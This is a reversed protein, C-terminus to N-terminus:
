LAVKYLISSIDSIIQTLDEFNSGETMICLIYPRDKRYVIGCDHLEVKAVRNTTTNISTREGFKNAVKIDKPVGAVIGKDFTSKTMLELLKESQTINLYSANYLARLIGSYVTASFFDINKTGDEVDPVHISLDILVKEFFDTNLGSVLPLLVDNDSNIIMRNIMENISYKQGSVMDEGKENFHQLINHSQADAKYVIEQSLLTSDIEALKYYAIAMPLKLLSGPSFLESQNVGFWKTSSLDRYFVSVRKVKNLSTAREIYKQIKDKNNNITETIQDSNLCDTNPNIYKYISKICSFSSRYARDSFVQGFFFSAVIVLVILLYFIYKKNKSIEM